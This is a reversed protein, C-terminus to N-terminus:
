AIRVALAVAEGGGVFRGKRFVCLGDLYKDAETFDEEGVVVPATHGIREELKTVTQKAADATQAPVVFAKAYEYRGVHEQPLLRIGLVSEPVLRVTGTV